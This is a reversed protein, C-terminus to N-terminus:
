RIAVSRLVDAYHDFGAVVRGPVKAMDDWRRVLVAGGSGPHREFADVEDATMEGGQVALSRVSSPSLTAFYSPEVACLYRKAAVHLAVPGTVEPGFWAALYRAGAKEHEYDDVLTADLAVHDDLLLHGVDHLLAAAVLADSQGAAAALEACQLAHQLETIAEDYLRSAALSAYRAHLDDLPLVTV